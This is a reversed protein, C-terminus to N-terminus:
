SGSKRLGRVSIHQMPRGQSRQRCSGNCNESQWMAKGSSLDTAPQVISYNCSCSEASGASSSCNHRFVHLAQAAACPRSSYRILLQSGAAAPCPAMGAPAKGPASSSSHHTLQPPMYSRNSALRLPKLSGVRGKHETIVRGINRRDM